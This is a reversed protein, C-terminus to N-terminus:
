SIVELDFDKFDPVEVKALKLVGHVRQLTGGVFEIGLLENSANYDFTLLAGSRNDAVTRAVKGKRFRVYVARAKADIEVVPVPCDHVVVRNLRQSM